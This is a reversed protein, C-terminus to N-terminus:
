CGVAVWFLSCCWGFAVSVAAGVVVVVVVVVLWSWSHGFICGQLVSASMSVKFVAM